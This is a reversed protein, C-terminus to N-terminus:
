SRSGGIGSLVGNPNTNISPHAGLTRRVRPEIVSARQAESITRHHQAKSLPRSRQAETIARLKQSEFNVRVFDPARGVGGDRNWGAPGQIGVPNRLQAWPQPLAAVRPKDGGTMCGWRPQTRRRRGFSAVGNPNTPKSPHAGLTRRVRPEIVSAWQAESITRHHQAKSLPRPRQAEIIARVKRSEFNVRVFDPARGVGGDRNWGATGQIGVPNRLQAWPQPLAAVRPKDGETMCGWRPQTRCRRGFSAVGNPNIHKNGCDWPRREHRAGVRPQIVSCRQREQTGARIM